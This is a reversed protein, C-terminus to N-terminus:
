PKPWQFKQLLCRLERTIIWWVSEAALVRVVIVPTAATADNAVAHCGIMEIITPTILEANKITCETKSLWVSERIERHIERLIRSQEEVKL